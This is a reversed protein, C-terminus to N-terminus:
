IYLFIFIAFMENKEILINTSTLRIRFFALLTYIYLRLLEELHSFVFYIAM